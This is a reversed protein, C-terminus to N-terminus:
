SESGPSALDRVNPALPPVFLRTGPPANACLWILDSRKFAICGETPYRPRRWQHLFIASGLGPQAHPWNYSSILVLDYLPDARRMAEHSHPYPVRVLQNYDPQGSADSWLDGPGIPVAWPAPSCLRDPRYFLGEICHPGIPTGGDGERKHHRLGGKGIACPLLRGRFRLGRPTLVM